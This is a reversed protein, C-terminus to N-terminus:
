INTPKNSNETDNNERKKKQIKDRKERMLTKAQEDCWNNVWTRKTSGSTHGPVWRARITVPRKVKKLVDNLERCGQNIKDVAGQCDNQVFILNAGKDLAIAISNVCAYLEAKHASPPKKKFVQARKYPKKDGMRLWMAWAAARTYPCWSADCIVTVTDLKSIKKRKM